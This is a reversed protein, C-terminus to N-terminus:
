RARGPRRTVEPRPSSTLYAFLDAIEEISLPNLLGDPMSSVKNRSSEAVDDERVLAKEGNVQLIILAGDGRPSVMGVYTKGSKTVVTRSAFQDSIVQSPFLVSELIEKKQFRKSM